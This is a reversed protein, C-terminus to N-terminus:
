VLSKFGISRSVIQDISRRAWVITSRPIDRAVDLDLAEIEASVSGNSRRSNVSAAYEVDTPIGSYEQTIRVRDPRFEGPSSYFKIM